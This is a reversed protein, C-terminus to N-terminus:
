PQNFPLNQDNANPGYQQRTRVTGYASAAEPNHQPNPVNSTQVRTVIPKGNNDVIIRNQSDRAYVPQQVQVTPNKIEYQVGEREASTGALATSMGKLNVEPAYIGSDRMNELKGIVEGVQRQGAERETASTANAAQQSARTFESSLASSFNKLAQPKNRMLTANDTGMAAEVVADNVQRQTMSGKAASDVLKSLSGYGPALDNRGVKKTEANAFGALRNQLATNGGAADALAEAMDAMNDYGTGTSVRQRAAAVKAGVTGLKIGAAQAASVAASADSRARATAEEQSYKSRDGYRTSAWRDTLSKVAEGEGNYRMAMLADDNNAIDKFGQTQMIANASQEAQQDRTQSYKRRWRKPNLAASAVVNNAGRTTANFYKGAGSNSYLDGRRMAQFRQQARNRRFNTLGASMGRRRDDLSGTFTAFAGQTRRIASPILFPAIAIIVVAVSDGMGGVNATKAVRALAISAGLIAAIVMGALGAGVFTTRWIAWVKQTNPLVSCIVAVPALLICLLIILKRALLVVILTMIGLFLTAAMSLLGLIGFAAIATGAVIWQAAIEKFGTSASGPLAKFPASILDGTWNTMNDMFRVAFELFPWLLVLGGVAFLFRPAAKRMTYADFVEFGASTGIVLILAVIVIISFAITQFARFGAFYAKGSDKSTDFVEDANIILLKQLLNDMLDISKQTAVILPCAVWRLGWTPISCNDEVNDTQNPDAGVTSFADPRQPLVLAHDFPRDAGGAVKIPTPDCKGDKKKQYYYHADTPSGFDANTIVTPCDNVPKAQLYYAPLGGEIPDGTDLRFVNDSGGKADYVPDNDADYITSADPKFFIITSTFGPRTDGTKVATLSMFKTDGVGTIRRDTVTITLDKSTCKDGGGSASAPLKIKMKGNRTEDAGFDNRGPLDTITIESQCGNKVGAKKDPGGQKYNFTGDNIDQDYYIGEAAKYNAGALVEIHARDLYNAVIDNSGAGPPEPIASAQRSIFLPAVMTIALLFTFAAWGLRRHKM